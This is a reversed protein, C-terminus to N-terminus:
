EVTPYEEVFLLLHNSINYMHMTENYIILHNTHLNTSGTTKPNPIIADTMNTFQFCLLM